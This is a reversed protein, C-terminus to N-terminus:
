RGTMAKTKAKVKVKITNTHFYSELLQMLNSWNVNHSHNTQVIIFLMCITTVLQAEQAKECSKTNPVKSFKGTSPTIYQM